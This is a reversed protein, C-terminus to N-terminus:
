TVFVRPYLSALDDDYHLLDCLVCECSAVACPRGSDMVAAENVYM